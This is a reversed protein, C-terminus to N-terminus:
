AARYDDGCAATYCATWYLTFSQMLAPTTGASGVVTEFASGEPLRQAPVRLVVPSAGSASEVFGGQIGDAGCNFADAGSRPLCLDLRLEQGSGPSGPTWRLELVLEAVVLDEALELQFRDKSSGLGQGCVNSAHVAHVGCSLYGDMIETHVIPEKHLRIPDLRFTAQAVAGREVSVPFQGRAYGLREVVLRHLGTPVDHFLFEGAPDTLTALALGEVRVHAGELPQDFRDFVLGRVTGTKASGAEPEAGGLPKPGTPPAACGALVLLLVLLPVAHRVSCRAALAPNLM